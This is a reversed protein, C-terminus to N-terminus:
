VVFVDLKELTKKIVDPFSMLYHKLHPAQTLNIKEGNELAKNVIGMFLAQEISLDGINEAIAVIDAINWTFNLSNALIRGIFFDLSFTRQLSILSRQARYADPTLNWIKITKDHSLTALIEQIPNTIVEEVPDQHGIYTVTDTAALHQCGEQAEKWFLLGIYDDLNRFFAMIRYPHQILEGFFGRESFTYHRYTLPKKTIQFLTQIIRNGILNSYAPHIAMHHLNYQKFWEPNHAFNHLASPTSLSTVIEKTTQDIRSATSEEAGYAISVSFLTIICLKFIKM